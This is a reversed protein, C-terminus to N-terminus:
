KWERCSGSGARDRACARRSRWRSPLPRRTARHHRAGDARLGVARHDARGGEAADDAELRRVAQDRAAARQQQRAREIMDADERARDLIRGQEGLHQGAEVLLVGVRPGHGARRKAATAALSGGSGGRKAKTREGAQGCASGAVTAANASSTSTSPSAASRPRAPRLSRRAGDLQMADDHLHLHGVVEVAVVLLAAVLQARHQALEDLAAAGQRRDVVRAGHGRMAGSLWASSATKSSYSAMRVGAAGPSAGRPRSLVPLGTTRCADPGIEARRRDRQRQQLALVAHRMPTCSTARRPLSARSSACRGSAQGSIAASRPRRRRAAAAVLSDALRRALM